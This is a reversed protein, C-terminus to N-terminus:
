TNINLLQIINELNNKLLKIAYNYNGWRLKRLTSISVWMM